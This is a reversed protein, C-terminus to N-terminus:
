MMEYNKGANLSQNDREKNIINKLNYFADMFIYM